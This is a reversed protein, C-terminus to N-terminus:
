KEKGERSLDRYSKFFSFNFLENNMVFNLEEGQLKQNIFIEWKSQQSISADFEQLFKEFAHGIKDMIQVNIAKQQTWNLKKNSPDEIKMTKKIKERIEELGLHFLDGQEGIAKLIKSREKEKEELLRLLEQISGIKKNQFSVRGGQFVREWAIHPHIKERVIAEYGGQVKELISQLCAIEEEVKKFEGYKGNKKKELSELAAVKEPVVESLKGLEESPNTQREFVEVEEGFFNLQKEKGNERDGM